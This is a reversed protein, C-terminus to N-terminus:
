HAMERYLDSYQGAIRPWTVEKFVFDQSSQACRAAFEGDRLVSEVAALLAEGNGAPVLLGTEGNRILETTGEVATAVIPLGAAMAELVVNPMGEWLSPLVLCNSARMLAPVDNRRGLLHVCGALQEDRIFREIEGRLPGEGVILLHAGELNKRSLMDRMSELLARIGKQPDLRGVFLLVRSDAPIGLSALDAPAANAFREWDVGNPIVVIKQPSLRGREISFTAVGESVCVHRAVWRETVRDLWLRFRGRREAVRIGSVIVPVRAMRGAVRGVINAHYLFTQLIAPRLRRLARRLRFLVGVNWWHKANLCAVPVGAERLPAALEGESSLCFVHPAWENRDLRTVIQVLAQEAGGRDLDTICFAIPVPPQAL